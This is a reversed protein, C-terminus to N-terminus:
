SGHLESVGGGEDLKIGLVDHPANGAGRQPAADAAAM